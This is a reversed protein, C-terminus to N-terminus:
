ARVEVAVRDIATHLYGGPNWVPESPQTAGSTDTARSAVVYHGPRDSRWRYRFVRFGYRTPPNDLAARHWSKGGDFSVEVSAIGAGGSFAVGVIEHVGPELVSGDEVSGIISKVKLKTMPATAEPPVAAGPAGPRTPFRYATEYFFGKPEDASVEVVGLWKMWDNAVWGPVVLRLPSGHYPPIPEGNMKLALITDPHLAKELPIGRLFPPTTSLPPVEAGRLHLHRGQAKPRSLALVDRLRAGTWTANGVAGVRWQVGPVRPVFLGRGNGSCQLVAEVTAQPLRELDSLALTLPKEVLGQVQLRWTQLDVEPVDFHNRLYFRDLPTLRTTFTSRVSEYNPPRTTRPILSAGDAARAFTPTEVWWAAAAGLSTTLFTRRNMRM